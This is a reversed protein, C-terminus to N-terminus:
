LVEVMEGINKRSAHLRSPKAGEAPYGVSLLCVPMIGEPLDFQDIILKSDFARAWLSGLGLDTAEMMMHTATIAADVEGSDYNDYCQDKTNKWSITNDYCILFVLPAGFTMKTVARVKELAEDSALVYIKQPQLNHATPALNGAALIRSIDEPAPKKDTYKRVSYRKGALQLFDM